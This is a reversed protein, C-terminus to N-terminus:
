SRLRGIKARMRASGTQGALTAAREAHARSATLDGRKRLATALDVNLRTEARRSTGDREAAQLADTLDEIAEDAGLTALANGRWGALDAASLMLYPLDPDDGGQPFDSRAEDFLRHTAALDGTAASCEGEVATLWRRLLDPVSGAGERAHQVLQLAEAPRGGDLLAYAQQATVHAVTADDGSLRAASRALQHLDWCKRPNGGDLCLWGALAAAEALERAGAEQQRGPMSDQVVQEIHRVHSEVQPIIAAGFWRDM